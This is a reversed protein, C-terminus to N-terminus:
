LCMTQAWQQWSHKNHLNDSAALVRELMALDDTQSSVRGVRRLHFAFPQKQWFFEEWGSKYAEPNVARLFSTTSYFSTNKPLPSLTQPLWRKALHHLKPAQATLADMDVFLDLCEFRQQRFLKQLRYGTDRFRGTQLLTRLAPLLPIKPSSILNDFYNGAFDPSFDLTKLEVKELDILMFHVSPLRQPQYSWRPHWQSALFTLNHQQMYALVLKIWNPRVVFFDHDLVLVFRSSVEALASNIANAHHTSGKDQAIPKPVAPLIKFESSSLNPDSDNNVVIWHYDTDPNLIRCLNANRELFASSGYKVSILSLVRAHYLASLFANGYVMSRILM